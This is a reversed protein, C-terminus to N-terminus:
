FKIKFGACPACVTRFAAPTIKYPYESIFFIISNSSSDADGFNFDLFTLSTRMARDIGILHGYVRVHRQRRNGNAGLGTCCTGAGAAAAGPGSRAPTPLV